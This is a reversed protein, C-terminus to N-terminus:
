QVILRQRWLVPGNGFAATLLYEGPEAPPTFEFDWTEGVDVPETAPRLVRLSQQLDAGDKARPRWRVLTTDQRISYRVRGAPGINIFRFRHTVGGALTLPASTASDGNVLIDQKPSLGNWLSIYVHDSAPDFPEGPETVIIAGAAGGTVQEIDNMHTHYMFTGARPLLLHAVFTKGPDIPPALATGRNSWGVVGDSWSELEIGHWHIGGSQSTRNHVTIDVPEGKTLFLTSAPNIVSDPKPPESGRQLVYSFTAGMNGRAAGQNMFLDLQRHQQAAAARAGRRPAVNLGLVLGAMHVAPDVSHTQHDDGGINDLRVSPIVHFTLHCHFLWNGARDPSWTFDRTSWPVYTETVALLQKDAPISAAALGTGAATTRFYFGHLHMPHGRITGNIVRWRLSDGVTAAIRETYPWSKGNIALAEKYRVSDIEYNVINLVFVRDARSGGPPDVVFAGGTTTREPDGRTMGQRGINARYLYTGPAGAVFTVTASDGPKLHLTDTTAVPHTGLGIIHATSDTLNNRVTARVVTGQRVRIMPAPIRPAKGKESFAEVTVHPGNEAEPYWEALQLVLSVRLTDQRLVGSPMRNDNAVVRDLAPRHSYASFVAVGALLLLSPRLPLGTM